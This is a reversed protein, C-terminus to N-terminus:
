APDGAPGLSKLKAIHFTVAEQDKPSPREKSACWVVVCTSRVQRLLALAAADHQPLLESGPLASLDWEVPGRCASEFDLWLPGDTTFLLNDLHPDGHLPRSVTKLAALRALAANLLDRVLAIQSATLLPLPHRGATRACNFISVTYYPLDGPYSDLAQRLQCYSRVSAGELDSRPSVINRGSRM